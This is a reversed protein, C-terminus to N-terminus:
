YATQPRGDATVCNSLFPWSLTEAQKYSQPPHTRVVTLPDLTRHAVVAGRGMSVSVVRIKDYRPHNSLDLVFSVFSVFLAFYIEQKEKTDKMETTSKAPLLFRAVKLTARPHTCNGQCHGVRGAGQPALVM